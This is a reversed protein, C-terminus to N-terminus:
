IAQSSVKQAPLGESLRKLHELSVRALVAGGEGMIELLREEWGGDVVLRLGDSGTTIGGNASAFENIDGEAIVDGKARLRYSLLSDSIGSSAASANSHSRMVNTKTRDGITQWVAHCQDITVNPAKEAMVKPLKLKALIKNALMLLSLAPSRLLRTAELVRAQDILTSQKFLEVDTTHIVSASIEKGAFRVDSLIIARGDCFCCYLPAGQLSEDKGAVTIDIRHVEGDLLQPPVSISFQCLSAQGQYPESPLFYAAYANDIKMKLPLGAGARRVTWGRIVGNESIGTVAGAFSDSKFIRDRNVFLPDSIVGDFDVRIERWHRLELHEMLPSIDVLAQGGHEPIGFNAEIWYRRNVLVNIRYGSGREDNGDVRIFLFPREDVCFFEISREPRGAEGAKQLFKDPFGHSQGSTNNESALLRWQRRAPYDGSQLAGVRYHENLLRQYIDDSHSANAMGKEDNAVNVAGSDLKM